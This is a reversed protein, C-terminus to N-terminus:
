SRNAVTKKGEELELAKGKVQESTYIIEMKQM